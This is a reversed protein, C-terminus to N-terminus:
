DEHEKKSAPNFFYLTSNGGRRGVFFSKVIDKITEKWKQFECLSSLNTVKIIAADALEKHHQPDFEKLVEAVDGATKVKTEHVRLYFENILEDKTM